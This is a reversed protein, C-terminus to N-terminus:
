QENFLTLLEASYKDSDWLVTVRARKIGLDTQSTTSNAPDWFAVETERKYSQFGSIEGYDETFSAIESYSLSALEEIKAQALGLAVTNMKAKSQTQVGLAFAGLVGAMGVALIFITILVEILTFGRMIGSSRLSFEFNSYRFGLCIRFELKRFGL